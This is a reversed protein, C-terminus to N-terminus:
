NQTTNGMSGLQALLQDRHDIAWRHLHLPDRGLLEAVTSTTIASYNMRGDYTQQLWNLASAGYAEDYFGPPTVQGSQVLNRMEEPTLIFAPIDRQLARSLTAAVDTANLLDTSLYYDKGAHVTPGEDLILAVVAAIDAAAVWGVPVDGAAWVFAGQQLRNVGLLNEMFVHPHVNAWALTSGHIYREIMEHWAFHQDTSRGNGFIGLHVIFDVGADEAADVMTKAQETMKATYGAILFVRDIGSLAEPFTDPNDLDLYVAEKGQQRWLAVTDHNRSARVAIARAADLADAVGGGVTGSAGLVLVRAIHQSTGNAM